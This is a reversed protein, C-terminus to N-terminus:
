RQEKGAAVEFELLLAQTLQDSLDESASPGQPCGVAAWKELDARRWRAFGGVVIPAPLAGWDFWDRVTSWTTGCFTAVQLISLLEPASQQHAPHLNM